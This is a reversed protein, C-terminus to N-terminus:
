LAANTVWRAAVAIIVEHETFWQEPWPKDPHKHYTLCAVRHKSWMEHFFAPSYGERDFVLVFRCLYPDQELQQWSPQDPVEELLRPVIDRRLTNLLGPDIEKEIVFFPRGVADNVWYDTIGRL